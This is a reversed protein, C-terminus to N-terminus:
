GRRQSSRLLVLGCGLLLGCAGLTAVPAPPSAGGTEPLATINGGARNAASGATASSSAASGAAPSAAAPSPDGGTMAENVSGAGDNVNETVTPPIDAVDMAPASAGEYQNAGPSASASGQASAPGPFALLLALLTLLLLTGNKLPNSVDIM